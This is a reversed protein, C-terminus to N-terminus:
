QVLSNVLTFQGHTGQAGYTKMPRDGPESFDPKPLGTM